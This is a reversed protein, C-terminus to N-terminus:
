LSFNMGGYVSRGSTNYGYIEQYEEDLLNEIKLKVSMMSTIEWSGSIDVRTYLPLTIRKMFGAYDEREGVRLYRVNLSGRELWCYNASARYKHAPRRLLAKGEKDWTYTGTYGTSLRLGELPEFEFNFEIGESGGKGGNTYKWTDYDYVIQEEFDNRFFIAELKGEMWFKEIGIDQGVAKEPKLASDGYPSYLQYLTPAKFGTGYNAKFKIGLEPLLYALSAQWTMYSGFEEHVDWRGGSTLFLNKYRPELEIYGGKNIIEKRKFKDEYPGWDSELYLYSEGGEREYEIGSIINLFESPFLNHQWEMKAYDGKFWCDLSEAPTGEDRGDNEERKIEHMGLSIKHNWIKNVRHKAQINGVYFNSKFKHNPDDLFSGDDIEMDRNTWRFTGSLDVSEAPKFGISASLTSTNYGDEELLMQEKSAAKSIGDGSEYSGGLSYNMKGISGGLGASGLFTNYMGGEISLSKFEQVRSGRKTIINIVGGIADSGYLASQPGRVIEIREINDITLHAFDFSRTPSIPDNIEIGDILVLTHESNAGRLFVSTVGGFAGNEAVDLGALNRLAEGVKHVGEQRMEDATIVTVTKGIKKRSEEIKTATVVVEELEYVPLTDLAMFILMLGIM